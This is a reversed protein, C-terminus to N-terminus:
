LVQDEDIFIFAGNRFFLFDERESFNKINIKFEKCKKGPKREHACTRNCMKGVPDPTESDECARWIKDQPKREPYSKGGMACAVSIVLVLISFM